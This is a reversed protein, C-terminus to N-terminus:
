ESPAMPRPRVGTLALVVLMAAGCFLIIDAVNGIFFNGYGIFDVVHGQGFAPPRFLRDGLHTAAGGLLLGLALMWLKSEIRWAYWGIVIVAVAAIITFVWTSNTGMSFAAGSNYILQFRIFDGIVPVSSDLSLTTVAWLKTLQDVLVVAVAIAIVFWFLRRGHPRESGDPVSGSPESENPEATDHPAPEDSLTM